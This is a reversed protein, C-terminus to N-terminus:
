KKLLMPNGFATLPWTMGIDYYFNYDYVLRLYEAGSIDLVIEAPKSYQTFGTGRYILKGDAYVSFAAENWNHGYGNKLARDVVFLTGKLEKYNGGLYYEASGHDEASYCLEAYQNGFQDKEEYRFPFHDNTFCNLEDLPIYDKYVGNDYAPEGDANLGLASELSAIRSGIAADAQPTLGLQTELYAVRANLTSEASALGLADELAEVREVTTAAQAAPIVMLLMALALILVRKTKM